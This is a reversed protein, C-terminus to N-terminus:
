DNPPTGQADESDRAPSDDSRSPATGDGGQRTEMGSAARYGCMFAHRIFIVAENYGYSQEFAFGSPPEYEVWAREMQATVGDRSVNTCMSCLEDEHLLVNPAECWLCQGLKRSPDFGSPGDVANAPTAPVALAQGSPARGFDTVM